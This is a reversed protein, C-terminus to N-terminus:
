YPRHGLMAAIMGQPFADDGDNSGGSEDSDDDEDSDNSETNGQRSVRDEHLRKIKKHIHPPLQEFVETGEPGAMALDHWDFFSLTMVDPEVISALQTARKTSIEVTDLCLAGTLNYEEEGYYDWMRLDLQKVKALLEPHARLHTCANQFSPETVNCQRPIDEGDLATQEGYPVPISITAILDRVHEPRDQLFPVLSDITDVFFRNKSYFIYSAEEYVQHCVYFLKLAIGINTGHSNNCDLHYTTRRLKHDVPDWDPTLYSTRTSGPKYTGPYLERILIGGYNDPIRMGDRGDCFTDEDVLLHTYIRNRIELPLGLLSPDNSYEM